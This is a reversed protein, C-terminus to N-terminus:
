SEGGKIVEVAGPRWPVRYPDYTDKPKEAKEFKAYKGAIIQAYNRLVWSMAKCPPQTQLFDPSKEFAKDLADFDVEALKSNYGDIVVGWKATFANLKSEFEKPINHVPLEQLDTEERTRSSLSINYIDNDRENDNDPPNEFFGNPKKPKENETPNKSPNEFFGNPKKPKNPNKSPNEFFSKPKKPKEKETPNEAGDQTDDQVNKRPRGGGRGNERNAEVRRQYEKDSRDLASRIFSFAMRTVGDMEPLEEDSSYAFIAKILVGAQEDTLMNFQESYETFLIFSDKM